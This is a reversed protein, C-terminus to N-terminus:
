CFEYCFCSSSYTIDDCILHSKTHPGTVKLSLYRDCICQSLYKKQIITGSSLAKCGDQRTHELQKDKKLERCWTNDNGKLATSPAVVDNKEKKQM